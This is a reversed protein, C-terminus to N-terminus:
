ARGYLTTLEALCEARAPDLQEGRVRWAWNGEPAGPTNIRAESGLNLVDQLPM